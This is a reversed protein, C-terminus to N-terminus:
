VSVSVALEAYRCLGNALRLQDVTNCKVALLAPSGVVVTLAKARSVAVNLRNRSFLFEMGRPIADLSSTALSVIVVAAEQGQFKDVTGIRAGVPLVQGLLSVQANYPAVILVDEFSIECSQGNRDTFTRGVVDDYLIGVAEAEELSSSRNGSHDVPVWRLGAGGLSGGGGISQRECGPASHLRDDYVVESIFTCIDPHLRYTQDLFLGLDEPMTDAGGLLHELASVDVGDPHTGKSPQSLQRPDGVLVLNAASTAVALVNALSMQGAEDVILYDLTQDFDTRSFVWATGAVLDIGNAMDTQVELNTKRLSVSPHDLGQGEEAKQSARLPVGQHDAEKVTTALLNTIVAHSNATIGVSKGAKLLAVVM